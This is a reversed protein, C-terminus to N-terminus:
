FLLIFLSLMFVIFAFPLFLVAGIVLLAIKYFTRM